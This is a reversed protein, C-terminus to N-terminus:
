SSAGSIGDRDVIGGRSCKLGRSASEVYSSGRSTGNYGRGVNKSGRGVGDSGREIVVM